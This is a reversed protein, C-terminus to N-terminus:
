ATQSLCFLVMKENHIECLIVLNLFSSIDVIYLKGLLLLYNPDSVSPYGANHQMLINYLNMPEILTLGDVLSAQETDDGVMGDYLNFAHNKIPMHLGDTNLIPIDAQRSGENM